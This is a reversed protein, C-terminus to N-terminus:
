QTGLRFTDFAPNGHFASNAPPSPCLPATDFTSNLLNGATLVGGPCRRRPFEAQLLPLFTTPVDIERAHEQQM